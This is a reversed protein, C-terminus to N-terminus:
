EEGFGADLEMKAFLQTAYITNDRPDVLVSIGTHSYDGTINERHGASSNWGIVLFNTVEGSAYGRVAGVNEGVRTFGFSFAQSARYSFNDHSILIDLTSATEAQQQMYENHEEALLALSSDFLLISMGQAIRSNNIKNFVEAEYLDELEKDVGSVFDGETNENSANSLDTPPEVAELIIEAGTNSVTRDLEVDCSVAAIFCSLIFMKYLWKKM